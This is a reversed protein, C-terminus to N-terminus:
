LTFRVRHSLFIKLDQGSNSTFEKGRQEFGKPTQGQDM